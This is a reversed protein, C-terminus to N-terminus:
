RRGLTGELRGDEHIVLPESPRQPRGSKLRGSPRRPRARPCPTVVARGAHRDQATARVAELAAAPIAPQVLVDITGGCALGVDWAEADSIGFRVVRQTGASAAEEM